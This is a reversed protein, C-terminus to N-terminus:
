LCPLVGFTLRPISQSSSSTSQKRRSCEKTILTKRGEKIGCSSCGPSIPGPSQTPLPDVRVEVDLRSRVRGCYFAGDEVRVRSKILVVLTM